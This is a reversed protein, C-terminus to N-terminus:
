RQPPRIGCQLFFAEYSLAYGHDSKHAEIAELFERYRKRGFYRHHEDAPAYAAGLGRVSALLEKPTDFFAILERTECREIKMGASKWCKIVFALDPQTHLSISGEQVAELASRLEHLSSPGFTTCLLLGDTRLVRQIERSAVQLDCWQLAANSYVVDYTKDPLPLSHIDACQVRAQPANRRATEVMGPALDVGVLESFGGADQLCRLNEGTGCGLDLLRCGRQGNPRLTENLWSRLQEGMTKQVTALADYSQAARSFRLQTNKLAPSAATKPLDVSAPQSPCNDQSLTSM